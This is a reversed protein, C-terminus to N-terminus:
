TRQRRLLHFLSLRGTVVNGFNYSSYVRGDGNYAVAKEVGKVYTKHQKVRGKYRLLLEIYEKADGTATVAVKKLHAETISAAKTKKSFDLARLGFGEKTFLLLGMDANSKPNVNDIVSLETLKTELEAIEKVLLVDFQSM